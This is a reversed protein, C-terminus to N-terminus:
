VDAAFDFFLVRGSRCGICIRKNIDDVAVSLPRYERPLWLVNQGRDTIWCRDASLAYDHPWEPSGAAEPESGADAVATAADDSLKIQGIGTRLYQGDGGFAISGLSVRVDLVQLCANTSMDWVRVTRDSAASAPRGDDSSYAVAWVASRHGRLVLCSGSDLDRSVGDLPVLLVCGDGSAMAIFRRSHTFAAAYVPSGKGELVVEHKGTALDWVRVTGGDCCTALLAKDYSFAAACGYAVDWIEWPLPTTDFAHYRLVQVILSRILPNASALIDDQDAHMACFFVLTTHHARRWMDRVVTACLLSLAAASQGGDANHEGCVLLERSTPAVLQPLFQSTNAVQSARSRCRAPIGEGDSHIAAMDAEDIDTM